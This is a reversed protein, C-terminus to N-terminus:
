SYAWEISLWIAVLYYRVEECDTVLMVIQGDDFYLIDNPRVAKPLDKWNCQITKENSAMMFNDCNIYVQSGSKLHIGKQNDLVESTRIERGRLEMMM